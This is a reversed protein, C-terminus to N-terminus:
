SDSDPTSDLMARVRPLSSKAGLAVLAAVPDGQAALRTEVCTLYYAVPDKGHPGLPEAKDSEPDLAFREADHMEFSRNRPGCSDPLNLFTSSWVILSPGRWGVVNVAWKRGAPVVYEGGELIAPLGAIEVTTRLYDGYETREVVVYRGDPSVLLGSVPCAGGLNEGLLVENGDEKRLFWRVRGVELTSARLRWRVRQRRGGVEAFTVTAAADDVTAPQDAVADRVLQFQKARVPDNADQSSELSADLLPM